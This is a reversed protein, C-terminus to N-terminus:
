RTRKASAFLRYSRRMLDRGRALVQASYPVRYSLWLMACALQQTLRNPANHMFLHQTTQFYDNDYLQGPLTAYTLGHQHMVFNFSLQDRVSYACIENWWDEMASILAAEGHKRVLIGGAALGAHDPYGMARYHAMQRQITAPDDKQRAICEEAEAYASNRYPHRFLAMPSTPTCLALLERPDRRLVWNGDMWISYEYSPLYRHPLIKYIKAKRRDSIVNPKDIVIQWSKTRHIRSDTFCIYDVGPYRPQEQLRDKCGFIATYVAIRAIGETTSQM